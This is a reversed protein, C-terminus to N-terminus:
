GREMYRGGAKARRPRDIRRGVAAAAAQSLRSAADPANAAAGGANYASTGPVTAGPAAAGAVTAGAAAFGADASGAAGGEPSAAALCALRVAQRLRALAFFSTPASFFEKRLAQM